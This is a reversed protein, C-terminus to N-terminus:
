FSEIILSTADVINVTSLHGASLRLPSLQLGKSLSRHYSKWVVSGSYHLSFESVDLTCTNKVSDCVGLIDLYEKYIRRDLQSMLDGFQVVWDVVFSFPILDWDNELTPYVGWDMLHRISSCLAGLDAYRYYICSNLVSHYVYSKTIPHVLDRSMRAKSKNYYLDRLKSRSVAKMAAKALSLSDAIQLRDGYRLSLWAAAFSKPNPHNYTKIIQRVTDFSRKADALYAISDVSTFKISDLARDHLELTDISSANPEYRELDKSCRYTWNWFESISKDLAEDDSIVSMGVWYRSPTGAHPLIDFGPDSLSSIHCPNYAMTILSQDIDCQAGPLISSPDQKVWVFSSNLSVGTQGPANAFCTAIRIRKTDEYLSSEYFYQYKELMTQAYVAVGDERYSVLQNSISTTEITLYNGWGTHRTSAYSICAFYDGTSIPLSENVAFHDFLINRSSYFCHSRTDKIDARTYFVGNSPTAHDMLSGATDYANFGPILSASAPKLFDVEVKGTMAIQNCEHMALLGTPSTSIFDNASRFTQSYDSVPSHTGYSPVYAGLSRAPSPGILGSSLALGDFLMGPKRVITIM